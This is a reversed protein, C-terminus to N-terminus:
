PTFFIQTYYWFSSSRANYGFGVGLYRMGSELMGARHPASNVWGDFADIGLYFGGALNEGLSSYRGGERRFRDWPQSGDRGTHSFYNRDAMDQSHKRATLAALDDWLLTSRRYNVRFANTVDFIQRLQATIFADNRTNTNNWNDIDLSVILVAHVINRDNIDYYLNINPNNRVRNRADGYKANNTVFGSSNTYLVEVLGNKIGVMLFRSYDSNYVHWQFDRHSPDIRDPPGLINRVDALTDGINIKANGLEIFLPTHKINVTRTASVWEVEAGLCEVVFRLPVMTRNNIIVPAADLTFQRSNRHAVRNGITMRIETNGRTGTIRGSDWRTEISFADFLARLPVLTSNNRIVPVSGEEDILRAAGNVTMVPSGVVFSINTTRNDPQNDSALATTITISGLTLLVLVFCLVRKM